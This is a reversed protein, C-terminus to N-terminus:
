GKLRAEWVTEFGLGSWFKSSLPNHQLYILWYNAIRRARFWEDAAAFLLHGIGQGRRREDVAAEAILGYRGTAFLPQAWDDNITQVYLSFFGVVAGADEAVLLTSERGDAAAKEFTRKMRAAEGLAIQLTPELAAHYAMSQMGIRVAGDVDRPGARRVRVAPTNPAVPPAVALTAGVSPTYPPVPPRRLPEGQAQRLTYAYYPRFGFARAAERMAEDRTPIHVLLSPTGWRVAQDEARALLDPWTAPAGAFLGISTFSRPYYSAFIDSERQEAHYLAIAGTIVGGEEAAFTAYRGLSLGDASAKPALLGKIFGSSSPFPIAHPSATLRPDRRVREAAQAEALAELAPLDRSKALRIVHTM